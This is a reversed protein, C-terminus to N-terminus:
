HMMLSIINYLYISVVVGVIVGGSGMSINILVQKIYIDIVKKFIMFIFSDLANHKKQKFM